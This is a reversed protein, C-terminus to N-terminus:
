GPLLRPRPPAWKKVRLVQTWLAPQGRPPGPKPVPPGEPLALGERLGQGLGQARQKQTETQPQCESKLDEWLVGPSSLSTATREQGVLDLLRKEGLFSKELQHALSVPSLALRGDGSSQARGTPAPLLAQTEEGPM